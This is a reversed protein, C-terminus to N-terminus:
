TEEDGRASAGPAGLRSLAYPDELAHPDLAARVRIWRLSLHQEDRLLMQVRDVHGRSCNALVDRDFAHVDLLPWHALTDAHAM